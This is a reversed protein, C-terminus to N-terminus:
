FIPSSSSNSGCSSLNLTKGKDHFVVLHQLSPLVVAPLLSNLLSYKVSLEELRLLGLACKPHALWDVVQIETQQMLDLSRVDIQVDPISSNNGLAMTRDAFSIQLQITLFRREVGSACCNLLRNLQQADQFACSEFGIHTVSPLSLISIIPASIVEDSVWQGFSINQLRVSQLYPFHIESEAIVLSFFALTVDQQFSIDRILTALFPSDVIADRLLGCQYPFALSISRFLHFRARPLWSRCVLACSRLDDLSDRLEDIFLDVIDFPLLM